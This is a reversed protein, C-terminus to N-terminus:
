EQPLHPLRSRPTARPILRALGRLARDPLRGRWRSSDLRLGLLTALMGPAAKGITLKSDSRDSFTVPVEVIRGGRQSVRYLLAADIAWNTVRLGGLAERLVGARFFKAGCQTDSLPLSLLVRVLINWVRGAAIRSLPQRVVFRSGSVWRSAVAVEAFEVTRLLDLLDVPLVPGDADVFGIVGYRAANMGVTLAGGKGLREPFRLVRVGRQGFSEAIEATRDATGDVVVLIEFAECHAELIPLYRSLTGGLYSEENWAPIILSVRCSSMVLARDEVARYGAVHDLRGGNYIDM